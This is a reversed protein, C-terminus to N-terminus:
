QGRVRWFGSPQNQHAADSDSLTTSTGTAVASTVDSWTAASLQPKFQLTYTSGVVSDFVVAFGAGQPSVSRIVPAPPTIPGGTLDELTVANIIPNRDTYHETTVTSGLTQIVVKNTAATFEYAVVAAQAPNNIEGMYEFPAFEDAVLKGDVYIDMGRACCAEGFMLQLKYNRGVVLNALTINAGGGGHRINGIIRELNNDNETDGFDPRYWAAIMSTANLVSVGPVNESTFIADRVQGTAATNPLISFAYLFSGDLDLGEDVDGGTFGALTVGSTVTEIVPDTPDGGMAIEFADLLGDDDTDPKLPDTLYMNIEDGDSLGDRDSDAFSPQTGAAKEQADNLGDGDADALTPSTGDAFETANSLGDGDSDEAGTRTLDGFHTMEWLDPLGDADSDVAPGVRELTSANIIANHDTFEPTTTTTGDLIFRLSNTRAVFEHTIVVGRDDPYSLPFGGGQYFAPSFDDMVLLNDIFVDFGRASTQEAFLLQLKYVSGPTLNELDVTVEPIASDAASWSISNMVEALYLDNDTEGYLIGANWLGTRNGANVTVGEWFEQSFNADGVIGGLVSEDGHDLAYVFNGQLDLGEGPDGGTFVGVKTARPFSTALTPHSFLRVEDYDSFSDGDTDRRKPDTLYTLVEEGDRLGDGDTDAKAPDTLHIKVEDGDSLEDRDTDTHTPDLQLTFEELNTLGDNDYDDGPGQSRDGFNSFEWDDRLGDEDDDTIPSLRELTFGNLIANRDNIEESTAAAGDLVLVVLNTAAVFQHTIVAGYILRENPFDGGPSQVVGPMFNEVLTEGDLVVNFGRGVCCSEGQLIQLKYEVGPEVRMQVSVVAPSASWRISALVAELNNDNETDGLTAALWGGTGINNQAQVTVGVVTDATFHADGVQGAAGSPGVNVAYTFTGELDLGEGPDGGTFTEVSAAGWSSCVSVTTAAAFLALRRGFCPRHPRLM